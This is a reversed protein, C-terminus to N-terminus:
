IKKEMIYDNMFYGEGIAIDEEGVVTFGNKEYFGRAPNHRNVNLRIVSANSKKVESIIKAMLNEGVRKGQVLPHVYLKHIKYAGATHDHSFSAFGVTEASSEALLFRHNADIQEHLAKESYFLDLMHKLQVESLINGYADPWVAHALISIVHADSKDAERIILNTELSMKGNNASKKLVKM